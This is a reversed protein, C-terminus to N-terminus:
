ARRIIRGLLSALTLNLRKHFLAADSYLRIPAKANDFYGKDAGSPPLGGLARWIMQKRWPKHPGVAHSMITYGPAFDMGDKSILSIPCPTKMLAMNFADQDVIHFPYTRDKLGFRTLGGPVAPAILELMQRWEVLFTRNARTVGIFGSNAYVDTRSHLTIGRESCYRRWAMRLPHNEPVPSNVDECIAVGCRVWEEFFNWRWRIIIDPDFYAVADHDPYEDLLDRMFVPKYSALHDPTKLPVFRISCDSNVKFEDFRATSVVPRAWDPLGGRHGAWLVGKYGSKVLSNTFAGVGFHYDKEFLTCVTLNM